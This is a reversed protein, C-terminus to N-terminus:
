QLLNGIKIDFYFMRPTIPGYVFAADKDIGSVFSEQMQNFINNVGLGLQIKTDKTLKTIYSVKFGLDFFSETEILTEETTLEGDIFGGPIYPAYMKGTYVGTLSATWQNSINYNTTISGYQNPTRLIFKSTSSDEDGWQNEEEYSSSQITYAGQVNFFESPAVKAEFNFGEVVADSTSNRKFLILTGDEMYDFQNDFRNKIRTHFGETLLYVQTGGITKDLDWALNFSISNEAELNPDLITRVGQGSSVEIHLDESFMQPARFGTAFGARIQMDESLKYKMNVRPNFAPLSKNNEPNQLDKIDVYDLRAGLLVSLRDAKWENQAFVAYTNSVQDSITVDDTQRNEEEDFYSLKKDNIQDHIYEMGAVFFNEGGFFEGLDLNLQSGGVITSGTTLGYGDPTQHAGYYSDRHVYQTSFYNNLHIKKNTSFWDHELSASGIHMDITETLDAEHPELDLKNGGRREDKTYKLDLSLKHQENLKQYIKSGFSYTSLATLESFDDKIPNGYPNGDEDILYYVDEPNANWADRQRFSGYIYASTKENNSILSSNFYVNYDNSKGDITSFSSGVEFANFEPSKTLINVTGGIANAGYLVSGGGRVVEVQEVMSVPIQELGYVGILGNFLPRSDILIQTYPGELGNLRLQTAGCNGCTNEVRSGSIFNLGESAVKFNSSAFLEKGVVNVVAPTEKRNQARRSSSVIVENLELLDKKLNFHLEGSKDATIHKVISQYGVMSIEIKYEKGKELELVFHGTDDSHTGLQGENISVSAFAIHEKGSTIHGKIKIPSKEGFATLSILLFLLLQYFRM